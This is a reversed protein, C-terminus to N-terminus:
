FFIFTSLYISLYNFLYNFLSIFGPNFTDVSSDFLREAEFHSTRVASVMDELAIGGTYQLTIMWKLRTQDSSGLGQM